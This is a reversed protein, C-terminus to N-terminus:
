SRRGRESRGNKIGGPAGADDDFKREAGWYRKLCREVCASFIAHLFLYLGNRKKGLYVSVSLLCVTSLVICPYRKQIADMTM